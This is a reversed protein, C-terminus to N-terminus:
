PARGECSRGWYADLAHRAQSVDAYDEQAAMYRLFRCVARCQAEDLLRFRAESHARLQRHGLYPDFTYITADTTFSESERFHLLTWTMYAPIHYRWGEPDLFCLINPYEEIDDDPVQDWREDLDLRRAKRREAESGCADLVDAEHLTVAGRPVGQFARRIAEIIADAEDL